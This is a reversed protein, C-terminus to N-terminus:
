QVEWQKKKVADRIMPVVSIAMTDYAEARLMAREVKDLNSVFIEQIFQHKASNGNETERDHTSVFHLQVGM